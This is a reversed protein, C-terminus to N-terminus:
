KSGMARPLSRAASRITAVVAGISSRTKGAARCCRDSRSREGSPEARAATIPEQENNGFTTCVHSVIRAQMFHPHDDHRGRRLERRGIEHIAELAATYPM